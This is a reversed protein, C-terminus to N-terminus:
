KADRVLRVSAPIFPELDEEYMDDSIVLCWSFESVNSSSWYEGVGDIVPLFVAGEKELSEWEDASIENEGFDAGKDDAENFEFSGNWGDPLLIVGEVDDVIAKAFRIGSKTQREYLLHYWEDIRLTRWTNAKDGGISNKGWDVFKKYAGFDESSFLPDNGTGWGFQDMWGDQELSEDDCDVELCELQSEAFRWTKTSPQYQLNGKSFFVKKKPGVTFLGDTMNSM